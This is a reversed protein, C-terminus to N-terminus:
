LGLAEKLVNVYQRSIIIKEGNNLCAEFRGGLTPSLIGIKNLNLIVTKSVRIFDQKPLIEELEYLKNKIEYVKTKCYVFVKADVYEFYFVDAPEILHIKGDLYAHLKHAYKVKVPMESQKLEAILETVKPSLSSCKIIIEEEEGPPLDMITIKM